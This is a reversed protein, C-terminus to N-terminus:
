VKIVLASFILNNNIIIDSYCNTTVFVIMFQKAESQIM